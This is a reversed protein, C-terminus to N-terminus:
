LIHLILGLAEMAAPMQKNLTLLIFKLVTNSIQEFNVIFVGSRRRERQPTKKSLKSCVECMTRANGNNVKFFYIGALIHSFKKLIKFTQCQYSLITLIIWAIKRKSFRPKERYLM